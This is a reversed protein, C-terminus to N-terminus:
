GPTGSRSPTGLLPSGARPETNKASRLEANIALIVGVYVWHLPTEIFGSTAISITVLTALNIFLIARTSRAIASRAFQGSVAAAGVVLLFAIGALGYQGFFEAVANHPNVTGWTYYIHRDGTMWTEFQGPGIGFLWSDAAMRGSELLLRWRMLTSGGSDLETTISSFSQGLGSAFTIVTGVISITGLAVIRGGSSAITPKTTTSASIGARSVFGLYILIVGVFGVLALRAGGSGVVILDLPLLVALIRRGASRYLVSEAVLMASLFLFFTSLDNSNQLTLLPGRYGPRDAVFESPLHLGSAVELFAFVVAFVHVYRVLALFSRLRGGELSVGMIWVAMFGTILGFLEVIGFANTGGRVLVLLMGYLTLSAMAALVSLVVRSHPPRMVLVFTAAVVMFPLSINAGAVRVGAVPGLVAGIFVVRSVLVRTDFRRTVAPSGTLVPHDLATSTMAM